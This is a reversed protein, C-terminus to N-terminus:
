DGGQVARSVDFALACGDLGAAYESRSTSSWGSPDVRRRQRLLTTGSTVDVVAVRVAHAREGDLEAMATTDGAEDVVAILLRARLARRAKDVPVRDLETRLTSLDRLDHATRARSDWSPELVRLGRYADSMLHVDRTKEDVLLANTYATRVKPLLTAEARARPPNFLCFVFADKASTAAAKEISAGRVADISARIYLSPRALSQSVTGARLESSVVDGEYANGLKGIIDETRKLAGRDSEDFTAQAAHIVELTYGRERELIHGTDRRKVIVLVVVVVIAIAIGMRSISRVLASSAGRATRGSVSAEIRAALAPHMKPNTLFTSM